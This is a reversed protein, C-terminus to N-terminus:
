RIADPDIQYKKLKAYLTTRSIQLTEATRKINGSHQRLANILIQKEPEGLQDALAASQSGLVPKSETIRKPLDSADILSSKALVVAQLVVNEL